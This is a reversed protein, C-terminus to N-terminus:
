MLKWACTQDRGVRRWLVGMLVGMLLKFSQKSKGAGGRSQLKILQSRQLWWKCSELHMHERAPQGSPGSCELSEAGRLAGGLLSKKRAGGLETGSTIVKNEM